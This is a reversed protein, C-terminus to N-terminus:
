PCLDHFRDEPQDQEIRKLAKDVEEDWKTFFVIIWQLVGAAWLAACQGIWLGNLGWGYWFALSIGLPLAFFYYSVINVAAGLHQRGMGRLVGGCCGNMADSVQFLAVFPLVDSTLQIVRDDDNFIRGFSDRTLMLTILVIGGIICAMITGLHATRKAQVANRGGLSKGVRSSIAIGIGFPITNLIQDATMITSQAALPIPGMRGAALAVIEFAWWETGVHLVGLIALRAFVRLSKLADRSWGGWCEAGEIFKAYLVLLTFSLWYTINNSIAAGLIGINLKYCFLYCLFANLPSTILLVYTSARM